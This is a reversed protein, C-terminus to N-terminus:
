PHTGPAVQRWRSQLDPSLLQWARGRLEAPLAPLMQQLTTAIQPGLVEGAMDLSDLLVAVIPPFRQEAPELLAPLKSHLLRLLQALVKRGEELDARLPQCRLWAPFLDGRGQHECVLGLAAAANDRATRNEPKMADAAGTVATLQKVAPQVFPAFQAGGRQAAQGLGYAAAQRIAPEREDVVGRLLMPILQPYLALAAAGGHEILDDAMFVAHKRDCPLCAPHGMQLLTQGLHAQFHKVAMDHHCKLLGGLVEAMNFQLEEELELREAMM